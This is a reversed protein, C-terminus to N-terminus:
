RFFAAGLLLAAGIAMLFYSLRGAGPLAAAPLFRSPDSALLILEVAGGKQLGALADGVAGASVLYPKGAYEYKLTVRPAMPTRNWLTGPVREDVIATVRISSAKFARLDKQAWLGLLFLIASVLLLLKHPM